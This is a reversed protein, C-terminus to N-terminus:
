ESEVQQAYLMYPKVSTKFFNVNSIKMYCLGQSIAYREISATYM